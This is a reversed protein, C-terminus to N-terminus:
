DEAHANSAPFAAFLLLMAALLAHGRRVATPKFRQTQPMSSERTHATGFPAVHLGTIKTIYHVVYRFGNDLVPLPPLPRQPTDRGPNAPRSNQFPAGAIYFQQASPGSNTARQSPRKKTV